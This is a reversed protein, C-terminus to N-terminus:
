RLVTSVAMHFVLKKSLAGAAATKLGVGCERSVPTLSSGCAGFLIPALAYLSPLGHVRLPFSTEIDRAAATIPCERSARYLEDVLM